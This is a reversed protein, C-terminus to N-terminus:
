NPGIRRDFFKVNTVCQNGVEMNSVLQVEWNGLQFALFNVNRLFWHSVSQSGFFHSRAEVQNVEIFTNEEPDHIHWGEMVM